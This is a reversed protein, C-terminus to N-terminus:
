TAQSGRTFLIVLLVILVLGIAIILNRSLGRKAPRDYVGVTREPADSAHELRERRPDSGPSNRAM